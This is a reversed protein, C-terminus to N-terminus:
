QSLFFFLIFICTVCVSALSKPLWYTAIKEGRVTGTNSQILSDCIVPKLDSWSTTLVSDPYVCEVYVALMWAAGRLLARDVAAMIYGWCIFSLVGAETLPQGTNCSRHHSHDLVNIFTQRGDCYWAAILSSMVRGVLSSMGLRISHEYPEGLM